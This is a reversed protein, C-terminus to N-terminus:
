KMVQSLWYVTITVYEDRFLKEMEEDSFRYDAFTTECVGEKGHWMRRVYDPIILVNQKLVLMVFKTKDDTIFIQDMLKGDTDHEM